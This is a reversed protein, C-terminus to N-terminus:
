APPLLLAKMPETPAATFSHLFEETTQYRRNPVHRIPVVVELRDARFPWPALCFTGPGAGQVMMPQDPGGRGTPIRGLPLEHGEAPDSLSLFLSLLDWAQLWRYHLWLQEPDPKFDQSMQKQFADQEALYLDVEARYEPSVEKFIMDPMFGYRKRYLGTGHLSVLLGAYPHEALAEQIGRRYIGLHLDTPLTLFDYPRGTTPDLTPEREWEAWGQDHLRTAIRVPAVPEVPSFAGGGWLNVFEAAVAAHDTQLTIRLRGQDQRLIM